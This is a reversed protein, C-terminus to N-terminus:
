CRVPLFGFMSQNQNIIESALTKHLQQFVLCLDVNRFRKIFVKTLLAWEGSADLTNIEINAVSHKPRVPSRFEDIGSYQICTCTVPADRFIRTWTLKAFILNADNLSAYFLNTAHCTCHHMCRLSWFQGIGVTDKLRYVNEVHKRGSSIRRIRSRIDSTERWMQEIIVRGRWQLLQISKAREASHMEIIIVNIDSSRM